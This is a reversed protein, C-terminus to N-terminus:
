LPIASRSRIRTRADRYDDDACSTLCGVAVGRTEYWVVFGNAKEVLRARAYGDGWTAFRLTHDGITTGFEPVDSWSERAGAANAGAISGQTLADQWHGVEIHRGAIRHMALAVDGAAYVNEISTRMHEDVVIRDSVVRIGTEPTALEARPTMGVASLVLDGAIVAGNETLVGQPAVASIKAGGVVTVGSEELIRGIREGAASGFRTQQPVEESDVLTTTIGRFALSAAAECGLFGAGIVVATKANAAAARLIQGDRLSRLRLATDGGPVTLRKPRAGCALVLQDFEMARGARTTVCRRAVDICVVADNRVLDIAFRSFWQKTHLKLQYVGTRGQLFSGKSLALRRYPACSEPTVIAVTSAGGARRYAEAASVGAPGSGVILVGLRTM